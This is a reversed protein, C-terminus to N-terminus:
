KSAGMKNAFEVWSQNKETITQQPAKEVVSGNDPIEYVIYDPMKSIKDIRERQSDSMAQREAVSASNWEELLEYKKANEKLFVKATQIGPLLQVVIGTGKKSRWASGVEDWEYGQKPSSMYKKAGASPPPTVSIKVENNKEM